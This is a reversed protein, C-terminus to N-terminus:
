NPDRVRAIFLGLTPFPIFFNKLVEAFITINESFENFGLEDDFQPKTPFAVSDSFDKIYKSCFLKSFENM